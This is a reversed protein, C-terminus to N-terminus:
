YCCSGRWAFKHRRANRWSLNWSRMGLWESPGPIQSAQVKAARMPSLYWIRKVRDVYNYSKFIIVKHWKIKNKKEKKKKKKPRVKKLMPSKPKCTESRGDTRGDTTRENTRWCKNQTDQSRLEEYLKTGIKKLSQLNQKWPILINM